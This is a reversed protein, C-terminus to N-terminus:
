TFAPHAIEAKEAHGNMRPPLILCTLLRWRVARVPDVVSAVLPLAEDVLPAQSLHAALDLAAARYQPLEHPAVGALESAAEAGSLLLARREDFAGAAPGFLDRLQGESVAQLTKAFIAVVEPHDTQAVMGAARSFCYDGALITGGIFSKDPETGPGTEFRASDEVLMRHIHLAVYLMELGAALLIRRNRAAAGGAPDYAVALALAARTLPLTQRMQAQVLSGLPIGLDNAAAALITHVSDLEAQYEVLATADQNM